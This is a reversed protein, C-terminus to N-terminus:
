ISIFAHMCALDFVVPTIDEKELPSIPFAIFVNKKKEPQILLTLQKGFHCFLVIKFMRKRVGEPLYLINRVLPVKVSIPFSMGKFVKHEKFIGM